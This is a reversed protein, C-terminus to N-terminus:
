CGGRQFFGPDAGKVSIPRYKNPDSKIGKKFPTTVKATKWDNPCIGTLISKSFISIELYTNGKNKNRKQGTERKFIHRISSSRVEFWLKREFSEKKHTWLPGCKNYKTSQAQATQESWSLTANLQELEGELYTFGRHMVARRATPKILEISLANRGTM